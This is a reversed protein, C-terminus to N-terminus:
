LLPVPYARDRMEDLGRDDRGQPFDRHYRATQGARGPDGGRVGPGAGSHGERGSGGDGGGSHGERGSDGDGGRFAGGAGFYGGAGFDWPGFGSGRGPGSGLGGSGLRVGLEKGGRPTRSGQM